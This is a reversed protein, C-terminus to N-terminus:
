VSPSPTVRQGGSRFSRGHVDGAAAEVRRFPRGVPEGAVDVEVGDGRRFGGRAGCRREHVEGGAGAGGPVGVWAALGDEDGLANAEALVLAAGDLFDTGAVADVELGILVVPVAGRGVAQHDVDRDLLGVLGAAGDGPPPVDAVLLVAARTGRSAE